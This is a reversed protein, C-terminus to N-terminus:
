QEEKQTLRSYIFAADIHWGYLEANYRESTVNYWPIDGNGPTVTAGLLHLSKGPYRVNALVALDRLVAHTHRAIDPDFKNM